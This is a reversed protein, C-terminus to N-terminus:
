FGCIHVNPFGQELYLRGKKISMLVNVNSM